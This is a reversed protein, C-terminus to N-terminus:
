SKEIILLLKFYKRDNGQFKQETTAKEDTYLYFCKGIPTKIEKFMIPDKCVVQKSGNGDICKSFAEKEELYNETSVLKTPATYEHIRCM